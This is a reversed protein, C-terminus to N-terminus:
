YTKDYSIDITKAIDITEQIFNTLAPAELYKNLCDQYEVIFDREDNFPVKIYDLEKADYCRKVILQWNQKAEDDNSFLKKTNRALMQGNQGTGRYDKAVSVILKAHQTDDFFVFGNVGTLNVDFRRSLDDYQQVPGIITAEFNQQRIITGMNSTIDKQVQKPVFKFTQTKLPWEKPANTLPETRGLYLHFARNKLDGKNSRQMAVLDTIGDCNFDGHRLMHLGGDSLDMTGTSSKKSVPLWRDGRKLYISGLYDPHNDGDSNISVLIDKKGDRDLDVMNFHFVWSTKHEFSRNAPQFPVIETTVDIFDGDRNELIQFGSTRWVGPESRAKNPSFEGFYGIFIDLDGDEDFDLLDINSKSSSPSRSIKM